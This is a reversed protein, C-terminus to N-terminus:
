GPMIVGDKMEPVIETWDRKGCFEIDEGLGLSALYRGWRCNRLMAAADNGAADAILCAARSTGSLEADGILPILKAILEGAVVTDEETYGGERGSCAILLARAPEKKVEDALRHAAATLNAFAATFVAGCEKVADLARTGNTSSYFLRRGGIREKTYERPSNGGDFGEIPKADKEGGLLVAGHGHEARFSAALARAAAPSACPYFAACGNGMVAAITSTARLVDIVCCVINGPEAGRAKRTDALRLPVETHSFATDVWLPTTM